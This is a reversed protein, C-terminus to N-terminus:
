ENLHTLVNSKDRRKPSKIGVKFNKKIYIIKSKKDALVNKLERQQSEQEKKYKKLWIPVEKGELLRCIHRKLFFNKM